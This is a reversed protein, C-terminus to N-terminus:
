VAIGSLSYEHITWGDTSIWLSEEGLALDTPAGVLDHLTFARLVGGHCDLQVAEAPSRLVVWLTSSEPSYAIGEPLGGLTALQLSEVVAGCSDVLCAERATTVWFCGPVCAQVPVPSIAGLATCGLVLLTTVEIWTEQSMGCGDRMVEM